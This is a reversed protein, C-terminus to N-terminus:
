FKGFRVIAESYASVHRKMLVLLVLQTKVLKAKKKVVHSEEPGVVNM